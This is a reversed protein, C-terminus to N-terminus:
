KQVGALDFCLVLMSISAAQPSDTSITMCSPWNTCAKNKLSRGFQLCPAKKWRQGVMAIGYPVRQRKVPLIAGGVDQLRLVPQQPRISTFFADQLKIRTNTEYRVLAIILEERDKTPMKSIYRLVILDECLGRLSAIAFFANKSKVFAQIALNFEFCKIASAKVCLSYKNHRDISGRAVKAMYTVLEDFHTRANRTTRAAASKQRPM